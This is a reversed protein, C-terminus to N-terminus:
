PQLITTTTAKAVARLLLQLQMLRMKGCNEIIMTIAVHSCNCGCNLVMFGKCSLALPTLTQCDIQGYM